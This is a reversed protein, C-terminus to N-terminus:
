SPDATGRVRKLWDRPCMGATAKFQASFHQTSPFGLDHAIKSMTFNGKALRRKAADIRCKILYAHPPLGTAAKFQRIIAPASISLRSILEDMSYSGDPHFSMEAALDRVRQTLPDREEESLGDSGFNALLALMEARMRLAKGAAPMARNQFLLAIRSMVRAAFTGCEVMVPFKRFKGILWRSEAMSLGDLANGKKPLTILLSYAVYSRSMWTMKHRDSPGLVLARGPRLRYRMGRVCYDSIGRHCVILEISGKHVHEAPPAHVKRFSIKLFVPIWPLGYIGLNAIVRRDEHPECLEQISGPPSTFHMFDPVGKDIDAVM